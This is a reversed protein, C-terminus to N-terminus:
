TGLGFRATLFDLLAARAIFALRRDALSVASSSEGTASAM